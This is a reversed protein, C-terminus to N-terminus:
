VGAKKRRRKFESCNGDAIEMTKGMGASVTIDGNESRWQRIRNRIAVASRKNSCWVLFEDGHKRIAIADCPGRDRVTRTNTRLWVGFEKILDNVYEHGRVKNLAGMGDIDCFIYYGEYRSKAIYEELAQMNFIGTLRDTRVQQHLKENEAKLRRFEELLEGVANYIKTGKM